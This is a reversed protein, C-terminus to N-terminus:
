AKGPISSSLFGRSKTGNSVLISLRAVFQGIGHGIVHGDIGVHLQATLWGLRALQHRALEQIHETALSQAVFLRLLASSQLQCLPQGIGAVRQSGPDHDIPDPLMMETGRQNRGWAIEPHSALRRGM